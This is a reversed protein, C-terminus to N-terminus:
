VKLGYHRLGEALGDESIKPCVYDAEAKVEDRGNGVCVLIASDKMSIDQLDDGFALAEERKLGLENMIYAIGDGKRHEEEAIDVGCEHFRYYILDPLEAHFKVDYEEPCFLLVGTVKQGHYPHVPPLIDTYTGHYNELFTNGPAILFRSRATVLEMTLHNEHAIRVLTKLNEHKMALLRMTRNGLCAYAGANAIVGNWHIGLDFVGFDRISAYPRASCLFIKVGSRAIKKIAKIGSPIFRRQEWDYLTNDIDFFVAKIM